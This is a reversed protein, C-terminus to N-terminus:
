RRLRRSGAEPVITFGTKRVRQIEGILAPSLAGPRLSPLSVSVHEGAFRDMIAFVLGHLDSYDGISLNALSLEDYGSAALGEAAQRVLTSISRERVPWDISGAQCFRCKWICGRGTELTIRDHVIDAFPVVPRNPFIAKELNVVDRKMVAGVGEKLLEVERLSGNPRYLPEYFAPVYVGKLQGLAELLADRAAGSAKWDRFVSLVELIVDEGDGIVVADLVEAIPEPNVSCPGGAIVLPDQRSRDASLLPIGGLELANVVNTYCLEYQLSFGVIDFASLPRRNELSALPLGRRRLLAEYDNDPCFVRECAVRPERNLIEYLIRLGLHSMGVEYKDPFVLAVTTDVTTLDKRIANLECGLYRSPRRVFPLLADYPNM